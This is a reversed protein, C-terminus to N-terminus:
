ESRIFLGLSQRSEVLKKEKNGFSEYTKCPCLELLHIMMELICM